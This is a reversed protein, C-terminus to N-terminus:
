LIGDLYLELRFDKPDRLGWAADMRILGDVISLGVGASLLADDWRIANREGAWAADTFLSVAGFSFLRALEARGRGFSTGTRARPGYGRLTAAGGMLWLRQPPPDGWSTGAGAALGIRYRETLPLATRGVLSARAYSWDGGAGRLELELGAQPSRPDTGWWPALTAVGGLEWGEAAELNDRFDWSSSGLHGLAFDTNTEAAEHYEAYGRVRWSRRDAAPPTWEISTGSRRYYDGDDRGFFLATLSNGPGLHRADEDVAALEHYVSWTFRRRLTEHTADVRLDPDLDAVGLRGTATVSLPGVPTQPRIQGRVGLSLGEVRNYRVLDPRQLGWRLTAPMRQVPPAPLDALDDFLGRLEEESTFGAATSGIPPPLEPSDRLYDPDEPVLYRVVKETDRPGRMSRRSSMRYPVDGVTEEALAQMAEARTRFHREPTPDGADAQQTLDGETVVSEFDYTLETTAPAKLIGAAVVGEVHLSRPLWVTEDWLSYDVAIMQVEATWPKLIGPVHKLDEDEEEKLEPLDRFADFTDALRYVARVLAGSEPEIWLSGTIFHVDAVTPVVRLEVAEIARGDPLSLTLTDGVSFAYRDRWRPDLPHALWFDDRDEEYVDDDPPVMGFLLADNGPDFNESFIGLDVKGEELGVPTQERLALVQVLVDGDRDWFVRHASESRYLTRDKLPMRLGVGTRQRVVATYSALETDLRGRAAVAAEYLLRAQEDGAPGGRAPVDAFVGAPLLVAALLARLLPSTRM